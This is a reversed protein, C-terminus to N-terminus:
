LRQLSLVGIEAQRSRWRRGIFVSRSCPGPRKSFAGSYLANPLHVEQGFIELPCAQVNGPSKEFHLRTAIHNRLRAFLQKNGECHVNTAQTDSSGGRCDRRRSELERSWPRVGSRTLSMDTQKSEMELRSELLIENIESPRGSRDDKTEFLHPSQAIM